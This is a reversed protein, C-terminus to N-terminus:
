ANQSYENKLDLPVCMIVGHAVKVAQKHEVKAPRGVILYVLWDLHLTPFEARM